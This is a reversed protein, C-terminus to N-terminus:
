GPHHNPYPHKSRQDFKRVMEQGFNPRSRGPRDGHDSIRKRRPHSVAIPGNLPGLQQRDIAIQVNVIKRVRAFRRSGGPFSHLSLRDGTRDDDQLDPAVVKQASSRRGLERLIQIPQQGIDPSGSPLQDHELKGQWGPHVLVAANLAPQSPFVINSHNRFADEHSDQRRFIRRHVRNVQRLPTM